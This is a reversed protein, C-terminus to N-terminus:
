LRWPRFVNCSATGLVLNPVPPLESSPLVTDADLQLYTEGGHGAFTIYGGEALAEAFRQHPVPNSADFASSPSARVHRARRWLVKASEPTRGSILGVATQPFRDRWARAFGAIVRDSLRGPQVVWILYEARIDSYSDALAVGEEQAIEAAVPRLSDAPDCIVALHALVLLEALM